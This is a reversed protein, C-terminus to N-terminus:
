LSPSALYLSKWMDPSWRERHTRQVPTRGFSTTSGEPAHSYTVIATGKHFYQFRGNKKFDRAPPSRCENYGHTTLNTFTFLTPRRSCDILASFSCSCMNPPRIGSKLFLCGEGSSLRWPLMNSMSADLENGKVLCGSGPKFLHSISTPRYTCYKQRSLSILAESLCSPAGLKDRQCCSQRSCLGKSTM